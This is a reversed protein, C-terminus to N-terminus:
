ETTGHVDLLVRNKFLPNARGFLPAKAHMPARTSSCYRLIFSIGMKSHPCTASHSARTAFRGHETSCPGCCVPASCVTWTAGSPLATMAPDAQPWARVDQEDETRVRNMRYRLKKQLKM